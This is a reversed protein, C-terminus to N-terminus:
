MQTVFLGVSTMATLDLNDSINVEETWYSGAPARKRGGQSAPKQSQGCWFPREHHQDPCGPVPDAQEEPRRQQQQSADARQAEDPEHLPLKHSKLDKERSKVRCLLLLSVGRVAPPVGLRGRPLLGARGRREPGRSGDSRRVPSRLPVSLPPPVPQLDTHVPGLAAAPDEPVVAHQTRQSRCLPFLVFFFFM